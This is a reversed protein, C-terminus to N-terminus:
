RILLPTRPSSVAIPEATSSRLALVGAAAALAVSVVLVAAVVNLESHAQDFSAVNTSGWAMGDTVLWVTTSALDRLHLAFLLQAAAVVFCLAAAMRARQHWLLVVAGVALLVVLLSVGPVSMEPVSGTADTILSGTATQMKKSDSAMPGSARLVDVILTNAWISLFVTLLASVGILAAVYPRAKM